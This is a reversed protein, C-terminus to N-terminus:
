PQTAKRGEGIRSLEIPGTAIAKLQLLPVELPKPQNEDVALPIPSPLAPLARARWATQAPSETEAVVAPRLTRRPREPRVEPRSITVPPEVRAAPVQRAPEIASAIPAPATSDPISKDGPHERNILGVTLAIAAVSMAAVALLWRGGSTRRQGLRAVVRTSMFGDAEIVTLQAAAETVAADLDVAAPRSTENTNM